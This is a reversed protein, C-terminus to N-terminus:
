AAKPRVDEPAVLLVNNAYTEVQAKVLPAGSQLYTQMYAAAAALRKLQEQGASLEILVRAQTALARAAQVPDADVQAAASALIRLAQSMKQQKAPGDTRRKRPGKYDASNFRRRDPGVYGVAEIWDRPRGAVADLRKQLDAMTIPRRLFEHVGADRAAILQASSVDALVMIVPAERCDHDGRRFARTFALGDLGPGASEVFLLQPDVEGALMMAKEADRAGYVKISPWLDRLLNALMKASAPNPDVILVREFKAAAKRGQDTM